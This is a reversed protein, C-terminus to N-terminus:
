KQSMCELRQTECCSQKIACADAAILMATVAM